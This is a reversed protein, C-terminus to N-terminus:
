RSLRDIRAKLMAVLDWIMTLRVYRAEYATMTGSNFRDAYATAQAHYEAAYASLRADYEDANMDSLPWPKDACCNGMVYVLGREDQLYRKADGDLDAGCAWCVDVATPPTHM